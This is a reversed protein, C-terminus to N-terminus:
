SERGTLRKTIERKSGVLMSGLHKIGLNEQQHYIQRVNLGTFESIAAAGALIDDALRKNEDAM